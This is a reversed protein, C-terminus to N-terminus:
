TTEDALAPFVKAVKATLYDGYTGSWDHVSAGDWRDTDGPPDTPVATPVPGIDANWGPDFFFPFSLRDRGARQHRVRHPTSQYRGGTMRELMDGLNVVFTGEVAPVDLWGGASRVQLGALGDHALITLLGYDTHEAVGWGTTPSDPVAAPVPLHPVARHSRRHPARRVLGRALGLGLAIGRVLAHGLTTMADIWALVAPRLEAPEVPFLNAGHLPTGARVRPDDATLETGFYLGEKHDPVGSTLEGGEPFWGRWARGARTMAVQAKDAEPRAFFARAEGDLRPLLGPDVGHGTIAFFGNVRCAADMRRAVDLTAPTGEGRRGHAGDLDVEVLPSVDIV